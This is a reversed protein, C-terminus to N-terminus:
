VKGRTEAIIQSQPAGLKSQLGAHGSPTNPVVFCSSTKSIFAYIELKGVDLGVFGENHTM